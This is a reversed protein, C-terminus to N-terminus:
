RRQTKGRPRGSRRLVLLERLEAFRDRLWRRDQDAMRVMGAAMAVLDDGELEALAATELDGVGTAALLIAVPIGLVASLRAFVAARPQQIRGAELEAIAARSVGVRKALEAQTLHSRERATRM